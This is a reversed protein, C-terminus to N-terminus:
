LLNRSAVAIKASIPDLGPDGARSSASFHWAILRRCVQDLQASHLIEPEGAPMMQEVAIGAARQEDGVFQEFGIERSRLKRRGCVGANGLARQM